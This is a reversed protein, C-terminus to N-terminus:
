NEILLTRTESDFICFGKRQNSRTVPPVGIISPMVEIKATGYPYHTISETTVHYIGRSHVHGIFSLNCKIEKMFGFHLNFEKQQSYFKRSFGSMNPYAYHSLLIHNGNDNVIAYEPLSAIFEIEEETFGPDLDDEHLWIEGDVLNARQVPDMEYWNEPFDFSSSYRPIRGAVHMDHNGPIVIDCKERVLSLCSSADRRNRYKYYVSSFGCIDGLCVLTDYGRAASKKLMKKLSRYDEHIDSIIALRVPFPNPINM